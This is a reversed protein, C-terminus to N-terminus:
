RIVYPRFWSVRLRGARSVEHLGAGNSIVCDYWGAMDRTVRELVLVSETEGPLDTGNKRWQYSLPLGSIASVRMVARNENPASGTYPIPHQLIFIANPDGRIILSGGEVPFAKPPCRIEQGPLEFPRDDLVGPHAAMGVSWGLVINPDLAPARVGVRITKHLNAADAGPGTWILRATRYLTEGAFFFPDELLVDGPFGGSFFVSGPVFGYRGRGGTSFVVRSGTHFDTDLYRGGDLCALNLTFMRYPHSGTGMAGGTSGSAQCSRSMARAIPLCHDFTPLTMPEVGFHGTHFDAGNGLAQAHFSLIDEEWYSDRLDLCLLTSLAADLNYTLAAAVDRTAFPLSSYQSDQNKDESERASLGISWSVGGLDRSPAFQATSGMYGLWVATTQQIRFWICREGAAWRVISVAEPDANIEVAPIDDHNEVYLPLYIPQATAGSGTLDVLTTALRTGPPLMVRVFRAETSADPFDNGNVILTIVGCRESAGLEYVDEYSADVEIHASLPWALLAILCVITNRM